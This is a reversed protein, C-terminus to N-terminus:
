ILRTIGSVIDDNRVFPVSEPPGERAILPALEALVITTIFPLDFRRVEGLPIWQLHHLEGSAGSFGVTDGTVATAPALFFRADFRRPRGPPTVARFVFSLARASPAFGAAAFGAWDTSPAHWPAPEGLILGTEEWLERVAGALLAPVRTAGAEMELRRLCTAGPRGALAIEGDGADVAGGPFVFKGPLFVAASGRQGMLVEPGATGERWLIVTAADRIATKDPAQDATSM